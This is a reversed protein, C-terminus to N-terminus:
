RWLAALHVRVEPLRELTLTEDPEATRSERYNGLVPERYCAMRGKTAELLWVEPIGNRAYLPIKLERDYAVATDAVEILLLVDGATPHADRYGRNVVLALDPTVEGDDDLRVPNQVRVRYDGCNQVTLIQALRDVYDAHLSSIPAMDMLEGDILEVRDSGSLIGAAGLRQFDVVTLKHRPLQVTATM